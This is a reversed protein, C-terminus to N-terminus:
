LGKKRILKGTRIATAQSTGQRTIGFVTEKGQEGGDTISGFNTSKTRIASNLQKKSFLDWFKINREGSTRWNEVVEIEKMQKAYCAPYYYCDKDLDRGDNGAATVFTIGKRLAQAIATAEKKSKGKGGASYNIFDVSLATAHKIAKVSRDLNGDESDPGPKFYKIIVQCYNTNAAYRDILGSVHTGHSRWDQSRWDKFNNGTFDKHGGNCLPIKDDYKYFKFGADIVAVKIPKKTPISRVPTALANITLHMALIFLLILFLISFVYFFENNKNNM